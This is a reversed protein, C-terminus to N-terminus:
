RSRDALQFCSDLREELHNSLFLWEGCLDSLLIILLISTIVLFWLGSKETMGTFVPIWFIRPARSERRLEDAEAPPLSSQV